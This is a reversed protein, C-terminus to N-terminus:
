LILHTNTGKLYQFLGKLKTKNVVGWDKQRDRREEGLTRIHDSNSFGGGGTVDRILGASGRQSSLYKKKVSTVTNLLGLGNMKILMTSLTIVIPSLSKTKRFFIYPLFNEQIMKEAGTFVDRTDWTVHQIFIMESQIERVVATYSEQPYKGVTKRITKINNYLMLTRDRLWGSKSEDDGIYGAIYRVGTCM